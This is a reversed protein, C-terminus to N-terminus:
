SLNQLINVNWLIILGFSKCFWNSQRTTTLVVVLLMMALAKNFFKILNEVEDLNDHKQTLSGYVECEGSILHDENERSKRCRCLWDTQAFRRDKSYNGAVNQLGFRTRFTQRANAIQKNEIYVKRDYTEKFIRTCKIKGEAKSKNRSETKIHCAETVWYCSSQSEIRYWTCERDWARHTHHLSALCDCKWTAFQSFCWDCKQDYRRLITKYM